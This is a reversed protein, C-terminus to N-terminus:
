KVTILKASKKHIATILDKYEQQLSVILENFDTESIYSKTKQIGMVAEILKRVAEIYSDYMSSLESAYMRQLTLVHYNKELENPPINGSQYLLSLQIIKAHYEAFEKLLEELKELLLIKAEKKNDLKDKIYLGFFTTLSGIVVPLLGSIADIFVSISKYFDEM